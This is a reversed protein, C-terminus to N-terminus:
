PCKERSVEEKECQGLSRLHKRGTSLSEVLAKPPRSSDDIYLVQFLRDSSSSKVIDGPKTNGINCRELNLRNQLAMGRSKCLLGTLHHIIRECSDSGECIVCQSCACATSVSVWKLDKLIVTDPMVTKKGSM